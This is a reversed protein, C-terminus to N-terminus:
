KKATTEAVTKLKALGEEFPGGIMKEMSMFMCMVKSLYNKPGEMSWTVTTGGGAPKLRFEATAVDEMPKLFELKIRVLENPRSEVITQRGEGMDSNGVWGNKAGVGAAPGEFTFKAAPDLKVWPSWVHAKRLDNVHPFLEAPSAAITLSREVRYSDSQFAAVVLIAAVVAVLALLIKKLM